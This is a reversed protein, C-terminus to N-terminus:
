DRTLREIISLPKNFIAGLPGFGKALEKFTQIDTKNIAGILPTVVLFTALFIAAGIILIIWNSFTLQMTTGYTIAAALASSLVIKISSSWDITANYKKKIWWLSIILSPVGSIISTALLGLIGFTPILAINLVLGLASTILALKMNVDTRGQSKIINEVTMYGFAIFVFSVVYMSLYLPTVAYKTGFLTAVGPQSLAIVIFVVPVILLSAYKVSFQFVHGLTEQEKQSDLKSFAPLLVTIVPMVFFTVIFAFNLAVQYNAVDADTTYVAVLVNYVQALISSVITSISLPLGYWFLTKITSFIELKSEDQLKLKKYIAFYLFVVSIVGSILYATTAGLTVGFAGMGLLVLLIMMAAKLTSYIVTTISHYEMKEYGTFVSQAAKFLAEAFITFSAIQILPLINPRDFIATAMFGSIFFSFISLSFGLILEFVTIAAVVNKINGFKEESRYQATYKITAWDVGWDRLTAILTPGMLAIAVLGYEAEELMGAVIMVGIASVISSGALGWFINFVGKASVKAMDQAKSM